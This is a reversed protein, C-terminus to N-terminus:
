KNNARVKCCTDVKKGMEALRNIFVRDFVIEGANDAIYLVKETKELDKRFYLFIM